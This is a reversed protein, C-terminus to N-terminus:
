GGPCISECPVGDKDGDLRTNGCALQWKAEECSSMQSCTKKIMSGCDLSSAANSSPVVPASLLASPQSTSRNPNQNPNTPTNSLSSHEATRRGNMTCNSGEVPYLTNDFQYTGQKGRRYDWPATVLANAWLGLAQQRANVEANAYTFRDREPQSNQYQKYHWAAGQKIQNLNCDVGNARVKGLLRQYRDQEFWEVSVQGQSVCQQLTQTSYAGHTQNSEPADIGLLRIRESAGKTPIIEITDGDIVRVSKAVIVNGLIPCESDAPQTRHEISDINSGDINASNIAKGDLAPRDTSNLIESSDIATTASNNYTLASSHTSIPTDGNGECGVILIAATMLALTLNLTPTKLGPLDFPM